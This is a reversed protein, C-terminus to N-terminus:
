FNLFFGFDGRIFFGSHFAILGHSLRSLPGADTRNYNLFCENERITMNNITGTLLIALFLLLLTGCSFSDDLLKKIDSTLM